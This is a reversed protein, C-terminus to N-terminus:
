PKDKSQLRELELDLALNHDYQAELEKTLRNIENYCRRLVDNTYADVGGHNRCKNIESLLAETM